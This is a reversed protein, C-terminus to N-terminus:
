GGAPTPASQPAPSPQGPPPEVPFLDLLGVPIRVGSRRAGATLAARVTRNVDYIKLQEQWLEFLDDLSRGARMGDLLHSISRAAVAYSQILNDHAKAFAPPPSVTELQAAARYSIVVKDWAEVWKPWTSRDEWTIPTSAAKEGM